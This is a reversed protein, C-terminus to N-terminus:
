KMIASRDATPRAWRTSCPPTGAAGAGCETTAIRDRARDVTLVHVHHAAHPTGDETWCLTYEVVEGDATPTRRLESFRGRHAFWRGYETCISAAGDITFRWNPVTADLHADDRYLEATPNGTRIAALLRDVVSGADPVSTAAATTIDTNIMGLLRAPLAQLRGAM